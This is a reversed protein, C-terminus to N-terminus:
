RLFLNHLGVSQINLCKLPYTFIEVSQDMFPLRIIKYSSSRILLICTRLVMFTLVLFQALVNLLHPSIETSLYFTRLIWGKSIMWIQACIVCDM